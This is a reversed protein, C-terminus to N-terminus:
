SSQTLWTIWSMELVAWGDDCCFWPIRQSEKPDKLITQSRKLFLSVSLLACHYFCPDCHCHFPLLEIFWTRILHPNVLSWRLHRKDDAAAATDGSSIAATLRFKVLAIAIWCRNKKRKEKKKKKEFLVPVISCQWLFTRSDGWPWDSLYCKPIIRVLASTIPAIILAKVFAADLAFSM